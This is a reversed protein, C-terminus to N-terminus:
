VVSKRDTDEEMDVYNGFEHSCSLWLKLVVPDWTHVHMQEVATGGQCYIINLDCASLVLAVWLGGISGHAKLENGCSSSYGLM